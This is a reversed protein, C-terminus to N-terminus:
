EDRHAEPSDGLEARADDLLRMLELLGSFSRPAAQGTRLHGSIPQSGRTIDLEVRTIEDNAV